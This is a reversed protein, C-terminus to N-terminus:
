VIKFKLTKKGAFNGKGKVTITATGKKKNKAYSLTYSQKLKLKVNNFKVTPAPKIAKGTRKYSKKVGTFTAKAISAPKITFTKALTGSYSKLGEIVVQYTEADKVASAAIPKGSANLYTVKFDVDKVLPMDVLTVAPTPALSKGTYVKTAPIVVNASLLSEKLDDVSSPCDRVALKLTSAGIIDDMGIDYYYYAVSASTKSMGFQQAAISVAYGSLYGNPVSVADPTAGRMFLGVGPVLGDATLKSGLTDSDCNTVDVLYSAGAVSVINWMHAEATGSKSSGMLGSVTFCAITSNNFSGLDCLYKFAKAYGECVVSTSDDGDFVWILQWPDGYGRYNGNAADDNYTALECIEARYSDLKAYDNETAHRAVVDAANAAAAKVRSLDAKTKFTGVNESDAYDPSVAYRYTIAQGKVTLYAGSEDESASLGYSYSAGTVSDYWYFEYPCDQLLAKNLAKFNGGVKSDLAERAEATIADGKVIASVGLDKAYYREKLYGKAIFQNFSISFETSRETGAAIAKVHKLLTDYLARQYDTALLNRASSHASAVQLVARGVVPTAGKQFMRDVYAAFLSDNDLPEDGAAEFFAHQVIGGEAPEGAMLADEGDRGFAASPVLVVALSLSVLLALVKRM